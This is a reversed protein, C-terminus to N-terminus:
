KLRVVLQFSQKVMDQRFHSMLACETGPLTLDWGELTVSNYQLCIIHALHQLLLGVLSVYSLESVFSVLM